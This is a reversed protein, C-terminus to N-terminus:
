LDIIKFVLVTLTPFYPACKTKNQKREELQKNTPKEKKKNSKNKSTKNAHCQLADKEDFYSLTKM